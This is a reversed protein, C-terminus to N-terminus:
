PNPSLNHFSLLSFASPQLSYPPPRATPKPKKEGNGKKAM